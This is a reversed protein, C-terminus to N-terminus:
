IVSGRLIAVTPGPETPRAFARREEMVQSTRVSQQVM